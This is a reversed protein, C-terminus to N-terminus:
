ASIRPTLALSLEMSPDHARLRITSRDMKASWNLNWINMKDESAGALGPGSRSLREAYWFQSNSVDTLTFHAAYLDRISWASAPDGPRQRIGHRFFTLQYGYRKGAADRLNGTFYWWETRFEPHSGHDRPFDWRWPGKAQKWNEAFVRHIGINWGSFFLGGLWIFILLHKVRNKM